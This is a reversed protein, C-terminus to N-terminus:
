ATVRGEIWAMGEDLSDFIKVEIDAGFADNLAVFIRATSTDAGASFVVAWKCEGWRRRIRDVFARFRDLENLSWSGGADIFDCLANMGRRFAPDSMIQELLEIEDDVSIEGVHKKFVVNRDTDITYHSKMTEREAGNGVLVTYRFTATGNGVASPM